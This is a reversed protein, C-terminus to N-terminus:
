KYYFEKFIFKTNSNEEIPIDNIFEIFYEPIVHDNYVFLWIKYDPYKRGFHTLNMKYSCDPNFKGYKIETYTTGGFTVIAMINLSEIPVDSPLNKIRGFVTALHYNNIDGTDYDFNFLVKPETPTNVHDSCSITFILVVLMILGSVIMKFINVKKM